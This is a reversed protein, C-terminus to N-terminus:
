GQRTWIRHVVMMSGSLPAKVEQRAIEVVHLDGPDGMTTVHRQLSLGIPQSFILAGVSLLILTPLRNLRQRWDRDTGMTGVLTTLSTMMGATVLGTGCNPHVAWHHEGNRMRAIAEEVAAQVDDTEVNGYLFFGNGVARGAVSLNRQRRTLMHVTAHELAHNRRVRRVPGWHLFPSLLLALTKIM